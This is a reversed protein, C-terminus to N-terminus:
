PREILHIWLGVLVSLLMTEREWGWHLLMLHRAWHSAAWYAIGGYILAAGSM